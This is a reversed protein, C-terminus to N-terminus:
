ETNLRNLVDEFEKESMWDGTKNKPNWNRWLTFDSSTHIEGRHFDYIIKAPHVSVASDHYKIQLNLYIAQDNKIWRQEVIQYVTLQPLNYTTNMQNSLGRKNWFSLKMSNWCYYKEIQYGYSVDSFDDYKEGSAVTYAANWVILVASIFLATLSLIITAHKRM